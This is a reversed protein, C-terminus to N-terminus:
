DAYHKRSLGRRADEWHGSLYLILISAIVVFTFLVAILLPYAIAHTANWWAALSDVFALPVPLLAHLPKRNVAAYFVLYGWVAHAILSSIREFSASVLILAAGPGLASQGSNSNTIALAILSLFGFAGILIANEFFALYVGYAWGRDPRYGGTYVRVFAYALGIESVATLVGYAAYAALSHGSFFSVFSQEVILKAAIAIFYALAAIGFLIGDRRFYLLPLIGIALYLIVEALGLTNIDAM